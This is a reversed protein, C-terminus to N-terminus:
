TANLVNDLYIQAVKSDKYKSATNKANLSLVEKEKLSMKNIFKLISQLEELNGQECLFGNYQDKIIGDIGSNKSAIVICGRSMAELYVLGFTENDSIMIFIETQSMLNIVDERQKYGLFRVLNNLELDSTLLKLNKKEGGEGIVNFIFKKDSYIAKLATITVDVNKRKILRGVYLYSNPIKKGFEIAQYIRNHFYADPIGSYCIFPVKKLTLMRKVKCAIPVSRAGIVDINKLYNEAWSRYRGQKIYVIEHFVLSTIVKYKNKLLSLLPIQPNEWHGIIVDPLFDQDTLIHIIENFQKRVQADSYKTRPIIKLMPLRFCSIGNMKSYLKNGQDKNPIVIGLMSNIKKLWSNPLWYLFNPYRNSNHIVLVNHGLKTWEEAFYRVVPTVGINEEDDKQPYISTLILINM